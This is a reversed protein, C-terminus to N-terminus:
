QLKYLIVVIDCKAVAEFARKSEVPFVGTCVYGHRPPSRITLKRNPMFSYQLYILEQPHQKVFGEPTATSQAPHVLQYVRKHQLQATFPLTATDRKSAQYVGKGQPAENPPHPATRTATPTGPPDIGGPVPLCPYEPQQAPPSSGSAWRLYARAVLLMIVRRWTFSNSSNLKCGLTCSLHQPCTANPNRARHHQQWLQLPFPCGPNLALLWFPAAGKPLLPPQHHNYTNTFSNGLLM